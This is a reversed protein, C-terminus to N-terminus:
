KVEVKKTGVDITVEQVPANTITVSLPTRPKSSDPGILFAGKFVDQEDSGAYPASRVTIKYTGPPLGHGTPGPIDFANKKADFVGPATVPRGDKAATGTFSVSTEHKEAAVFPQGKKLLVATVKVGEIQPGSGGCGCLFAAGVFFTLSLLFMRHQMAVM